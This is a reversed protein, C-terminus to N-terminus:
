LGKAFRPDLMDRLGDGILNVALVTLSLGVAPFAILYPKLQWLSRGESIINGWSPTTPPTGVGIFSLTAEALMAGACIFTAQVTLPAITNPLIHRLIIIPTRTGSAIAADVFPQDRLSLTVARVLRTVSPINAITVAVIVNTLGGGAFAVIAIAFLIPPIAMVGDMLRMIIADAWRVFGSVLGIFLGLVSSLFAVSFGAILSVRSGYIVRSYVDRGLMDTGFWASISPPQLRTAPSLAATDKTWLVPALVAVLTLIALLVFGVTAAPHRSILRAVGSKRNRAPILDPYTLTSSPLTL